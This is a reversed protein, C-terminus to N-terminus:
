PVSSVDLPDRWGAVHLTGGAGWAAQRPRLGLALPDRWGAVHLTGTRGWWSRGRWLTDWHMCGSAVRCNIRVGASDAPQDPREVSLPGRRNCCRGLWHGFREWEAEGSKGSTESVGRKAEGARRGGDERTYRRRMARRGERGLDKESVEKKNDKSVM